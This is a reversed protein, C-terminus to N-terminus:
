LFVEQSLLLHNNEAITKMHKKKTINDILSSAVDNAM